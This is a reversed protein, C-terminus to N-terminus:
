VPVASDCERVPAPGSGERQCVWAGDGEAYYDEDFFAVGWSGETPCTYTVSKEAPQTQYLECVTGEASLTYGDPCTTDASAAPALGLGVLGALALSLSSRTRRVAM